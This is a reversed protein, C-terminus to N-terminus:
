PLERLLVITRGHGEEVSKVGRMDVIQSDDVYAVGNLSDQVLKMLNDIDVARHTARIFTVILQVPGQFPKRGERRMKTLCYGRVVDEARRTRPDTYTGIKNQKTLFARPRSKPVPDEPVVFAFTHPNM